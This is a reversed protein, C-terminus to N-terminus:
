EVVVPLALCVELGWNGGFGRLSDQYTTMSTKYGIFERQVETYLGSHLTVGTM